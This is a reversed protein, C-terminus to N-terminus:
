KKNTRKNNQQEKQTAWRCNSPEYNGNNDIRDLTHHPTPKDGMDRKFQEFSNWQECVTIGRGGYDKYKKHTPRTCRQKMNGWTYYLPSDKYREKIVREKPVYVKVAKHNGCNKKAKGVQLSHLAVNYTNTCLPCMIVVHRRGNITRLDQVIDYGNINEPLTENKYATACGCNRKRQTTVDTIAAEFENGCVPCLYIAHALAHKIRGIKNETVRVLTPIM